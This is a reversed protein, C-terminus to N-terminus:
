NETKKVQELPVLTERQSAKAKLTVYAKGIGQRIAARNKGLILSTMEISLGYSHTMRWYVMRRRFTSLRSRKNRLTEYLFVEHRLAKEMLQTYGRAIMENKLQAVLSRSSNPNHLYKRLTIQKAVSHIIQEKDAGITKKILNM